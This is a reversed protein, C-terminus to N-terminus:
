DYWVSRCMPCTCRTSKRLWINICQNHFYNNCLKCKTITEDKIFDDYCISCIDNINDNNYKIINKFRPNLNNNFKENLNLNIKLSFICINPKSGIENLIIQKSDKLVKSIIFYIHKCILNRKKFEGCSCSLQDNIYITYSTGSIGEVIFKWNNLSIMEADILFLRQKLAKDLKELISKKEIQRNISIMTEISDSSDLSTRDDM